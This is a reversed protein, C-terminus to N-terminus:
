LKGLHLERKWQGDFDKFKRTDFINQGVTPQMTVKRAQEVNDRTFSGDQNHVNLIAIALANPNSIEDRFHIVKGRGDPM